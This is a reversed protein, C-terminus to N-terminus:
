FPFLAHLTRPHSGPIRPDIAVMRKQVRVWRNVNPKGGEDCPGPRYVNAVAVINDMTDMNSLSAQM